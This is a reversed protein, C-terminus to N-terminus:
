YLDGRERGEKEEEVEKGNGLKDKVWAGRRWRGWLQWIEKIYLM